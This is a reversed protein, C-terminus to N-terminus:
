SLIGEYATYVGHTGWDGVPGATDANQKSLLKLVRINLIYDVNFIGMGEGWVAGQLSLCISVITM